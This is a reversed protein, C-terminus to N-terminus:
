RRHFGNNLDFTAGSYHRADEGLLFFITKAVDEAEIPEKVLETRRYWELVHEPVASFMDTRVIGPAVANVRIYPSFSFACCRTLAAVAGKSAGYIADASGYQAVSAVNVIVGESKNQILPRAFAQTMFAAGLVNIDFVANMEEPSYDLINRAPYIGANNVLYNPRTDLAAFFEAVAAHDAVDFCHTSVATTFKEQVAALLQPNVDCALVDFGGAVCACLTAYGIGKGAGTIIVSRQTM